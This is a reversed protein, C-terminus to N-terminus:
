AILATEFLDATEQSVAQGIRIQILLQLEDPVADAGHCEITPGPDSAPAAHTQASIGLVHKM